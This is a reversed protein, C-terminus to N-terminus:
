YEQKKVLFDPLRHYLELLLEEECSHLVAIVPQGRKTKETEQHLLFSASFLASKIDKGEYKMKILWDILEKIDNKSDKPVRLVTTETFALMSYNGKRGAGERIGGRHELMSEEIEKCEEKGSHGISFIWNGCRCIIAPRYFYYQRMRKRIADERIIRNLIEIQQM